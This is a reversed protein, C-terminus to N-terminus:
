SSYSSISWKCYLPDAKVTSDSDTSDSKEAGEEITARTPRYRRLTESQHMRTRRIPQSSLEIDVTCSEAWPYLNTFLYSDILIWSPTLYSFQDDLTTNAGISNNRSQSVLEKDGNNVAPWYGTSSRYLVRPRIQYAFFEFTTFLMQWIPFNTM